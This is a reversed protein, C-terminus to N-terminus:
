SLARMLEEYKIPKKILQYMNGHKEIYEEVRERILGPIGLVGTAFIIKYDSKVEKYKSNIFDAVRLGTIYGYLTEEASFPEWPIIMIDLIFYDVLKKQDIFRNIIKLADISNAAKTVNYNEGEIMESWWDLTLEEDEMYFIHHKKSM